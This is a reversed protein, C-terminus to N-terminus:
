KVQCLMKHGKRAWGGCRTNCVLSMRFQLHQM